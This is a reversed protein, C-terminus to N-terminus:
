PDYIPGSRVTGSPGPAKGAKVQSIAKKVMNTIIPIPPGEVPPEDSLHNLEWDFEINLLRQYHELWAMWKSDENMPMKGPDNKIEEPVMISKYEDYNYAKVSKKKLFLLGETQNSHCSLTQMGTSKYHPSNFFPMQWAQASM